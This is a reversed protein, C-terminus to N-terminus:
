ADRLGVDFEYAFINNMADVTEMNIMKAMKNDDAM